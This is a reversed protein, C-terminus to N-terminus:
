FSGFGGGGFFDDDGFASFGFGFPNTNRKSGQQRKKRGFVGFDSLDMGADEFFSEFLDFPDFGDQFGHFTFGAGGGQPADHGYRDYAARKDKDSLVQYAEGIEKFM